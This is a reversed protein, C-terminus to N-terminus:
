VNWGYQEKEQDKCEDNNHRRVFRHNHDNKNNTIFLCFGHWFM